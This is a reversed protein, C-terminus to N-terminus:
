FRPATVGAKELHAIFGDVVELAYQQKEAMTLDAENALRPMLAVLRESPAHRLWYLTELQKERSQEYLMPFVQAIPDAALTRQIKAELEDRPVATAARVKAAAMVIQPRTTTPAQSPTSDDHLMMVVAIGTLAIALVLRM